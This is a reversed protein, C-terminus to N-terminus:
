QMIKRIERSVLRDPGAYDLQGYGQVSHFWIPLLLRSSSWSLVHFFSHNHLNLWPPGSLDQTRQPVSPVRSLCQALCLGGNTTDVQLGPSVVTFPKYQLTIISNHPRRQISHPGLFKHKNTVLALYSRHFNRWYKWSLPVRVETHQVRSMQYWIGIRFKMSNDKKRVGVQIEVLLSYVFVVLAPEHVEYAVKLCFICISWLTTM